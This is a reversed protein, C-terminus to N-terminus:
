KEARKSWQDDTQMQGVKIGGEVEIGRQICVYVVEQFYPFNGLGEMIDNWQAIRFYFADILVEEGWFSNLLFYNTYKTTSISCVADWKRHEQFSVQALLHIETVVHDTNSFTYATWM